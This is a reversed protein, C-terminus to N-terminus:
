EVACIEAKFSGAFNKYEAALTYTDDYHMTLYTVLEKAHDLEEVLNGESDYLFIDLDGQKIDSAYYFRISDGEEAFFSVTSINTVPESLSFSHSINGLIKPRCSLWLALAALVIGICFVISLCKRKM